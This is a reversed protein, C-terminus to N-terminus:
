VGSLVSGQFLCWDVAEWYSQLYNTSFIIVDDLDVFGDGNQDSKDGTQEIVGCNNSEAIYTLLLSYHDVKYSTISRFYKPNNISTEYFTCWDVTQWDQGLYRDAFMEVDLDNVLGDGNLDSKDINAAHALPM